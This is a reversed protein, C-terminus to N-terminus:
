EINKLMYSRKHLPAQQLLKVLRKSPYFVCKIKTISKLDVDKPDNMAKAELRPRLTGINGLLKLRFFSFILSIRM